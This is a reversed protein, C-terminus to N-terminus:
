SSGDHTENWLKIAARVANSDWSDLLSALQTPLMKTWYENEAMSMIKGQERACQEIIRDRKEELEYLKSTNETRGIRAFVAVYQKQM